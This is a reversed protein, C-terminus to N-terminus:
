SPNDSLYMFIRSDSPLTAQFAQFAHAFKISRRLQIRSLSLPSMEGNVNIVLDSYWKIIFLLTYLIASGVDTSRNKRQM